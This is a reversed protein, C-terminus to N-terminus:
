GHVFHIKERPFFPLLYSCFIEQMSAVRADDYTGLGDRISVHERLLAAEPRQSRMSSLFTKGMRFVGYSVAEIKSADIRGFVDEVCAKYQTEWHESYLVPDFCLRVRWGRALAMKAQLVRTHLSATGHEYSRIIEQPSLSFVLTANKPADIHQLHMFGDSKTRVELTIHPLDRTMDVFLSLAPIFPEFAMLDTVYSAAVTARKNTKHATNEATLRQSLDELGARFDDINAYVVINASPHMGQLFCYDCHYPCNRIISCSYVDESGFSQVRKGGHELVTGRQKAIILKLSKRQLLFDQRPRNFFQKYDDIWLLKASSFKQLLLSTLPYGAAEKEAYIHSFQM